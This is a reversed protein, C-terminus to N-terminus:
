QVGPRLLGHTRMWAVTIAVGDRMTHPLPGTVAETPSLDFHTTDAWMNRLRRSTLPPHHWGFAFLLDGLKAMTKLLGVPMTRPPKQCVQDAIAQAWKRITYVEYDALFFTRGHVLNTPADLFRQLQFVINGVFSFYKPPDASGPHFYGRRAVLQFFEPYGASFWPGWVSTPRVIVWTCKMRNGARVINEGIVKSKGYATDPCCDNEIDAQHYGTPVVLKTSVFVARQLDPLDTSVDVLNRVGDTNARFFALDNSWTTAEAALHVLHTPDFERAVRRLALEDLIDAQAWLHAHRAERPKQVDVNLVDQGAQVYAEVLNTGIFGSGGTVLVRLPCEREQAVPQALM